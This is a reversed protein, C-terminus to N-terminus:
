RAVPRMVVTALDTSQRAATAGAMDEGAFPRRGTLVEFLMCGFAWMDSRIDAERGKTPGLAPTLAFCVGFQHGILVGHDSGM